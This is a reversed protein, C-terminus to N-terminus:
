NRIRQVFSTLEELTVVEDHNVDILEFEALPSYVFEFGTLRGDHNTDATAFAEPSLATEDYEVSLNQDSDVLSFLMVKKLRFEAHDRRRSHRM